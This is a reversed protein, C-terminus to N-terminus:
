LSTVIDSTVLILAMYGVSLSLSMCVSLCVSLCVSMVICSTCNLCRGTSPLVTVTVYCHRKDDNSIACISVISDSMHICVYNYVCATYLYLAFCDLIINNCGLVVVKCTRGNLMQVM